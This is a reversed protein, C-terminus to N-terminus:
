NKKTKRDDELKRYLQNMHENRESFVEDTFELDNINIYVIGTPEDYSIERDDQVKVNQNSTAWPQETDVPFAVICLPDELETSYVSGMVFETHHEKLYAVKGQVLKTLTEVYKDYKETIDFRTGTLHNLSDVVNMVEGTIVNHLKVYKLYWEFRCDKCVHVDRRWQKERMTLYLDTANEDTLLTATVDKECVDCTGKLQHKM